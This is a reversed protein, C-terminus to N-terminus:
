FEDIQIYIHLKAGAKKVIVLMPFHLTSPHPRM